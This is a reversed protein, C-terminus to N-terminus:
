VKWGARYQKTVFQQAASSNTVRMAPGDWEIKTRARLALIMLREGDSAGAALAVARATHEVLSRADPATSALGYEAMAFSTDLAAARAFAAHGEHPLLNENLARGHLYLARAEASRTTLPVKGSAVAPPASQCGVVTLLALSRYLARYM